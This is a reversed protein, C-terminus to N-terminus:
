FFKKVHRAIRPSGYDCEACKKLTELLFDPFKDELEADRLTIETEDHHYERELAKIAESNAANRALLIALKTDPEDVKKAYKSLEFCQKCVRSAGYISPM